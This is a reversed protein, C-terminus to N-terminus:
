AVSKDCPMESCAPFLVLSRAPIEAVEEFALWARPGVVPGFGHQTTSWGQSWDKPAVKLEDEQVQAAAQAFPLEPTGM